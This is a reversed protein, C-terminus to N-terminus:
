QAVGAAEAAARVTALEADAGAFVTQAEAWIAAANEAEGLVGYATILRAWESAPGGEDALRGALQSVMGRIMDQRDGETMTQANAIDDANPGRLAPLSYKVGARFAADEIQSRAAAVHFETPDGGEVIPRWLRFAVDSRDTQYYLAGMYYLAGANEPDAELIQRVLVEAEPSVLGDAATVMLDVMLRKDNVSAADGRLTMVRAQAEVAAPYERMQAEHYALLEWGRLDDPRTPVLKRLQEVSALYDAPVDPALSPLAAAQLAAQDPRNLRMEDSAAIRAKLPLDPYGIAGLQWYAGLGAATIVGIVAIAVGRSPASGGRTMHRGDAALLRRQVEVRTRDAELQDITGRAVDNELEALQARYFAVDPDAAPPKQGDWLPKVVLVGVVLSLVVCIIWFVM